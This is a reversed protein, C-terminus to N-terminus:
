TQGRWTSSIPSRQRMCSFNELVIRYNLVHRVNPREFTAVSKQHATLSPRPSHRRCATLARQIFKSMLAASNRRIAVLGHNLPVGGGFSKEELTSGAIKRFTLSKIYQTRNHRVEKLKPHEDGIFVRDEFELLAHKLGAFTTDAKIWTFCNGIRDKEQSGSFSHADSCDLLHHNVCEDKLKRTGRECDEATASATSVLDVSNIVNKKDAISNDNWRINAWETKGVAFLYKGKFYHKDLADDRGPIDSPNQDGVHSNNL